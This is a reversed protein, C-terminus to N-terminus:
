KAHVVIDAGWVPVGDHVQDLRVHSSASSDVLARARWDDDYDTLDGTGRVFKVAAKQLDGSLSTDKEPYFAVPELSANGQYVPAETCAASALLLTSSIRAFRTMAM